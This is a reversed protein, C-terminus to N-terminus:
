RMWVETEEEPIALPSFTSKLSPLSIHKEEWFVVDEGVGCTVDVTKREDFHSFDRSLGDPPNQSGEVYYVDTRVGDEAMRDVCRFFANLFFGRGVGGFENLKRQAVVIAYHDTVVAVRAGRFFLHPWQRRAFELLLMAGAPEAHASKKQNFLTRPDSRARANPGITNLWRRQCAFVKGDAAIYGGFGDGSADTWLILNYDEEAHSPILRVEPVTTYERKACTQVIDNLQDRVPESVHELKADWGQAHAVACIARHAAFLTWFNSPAIAVTHMAYQALSVLSTFQRYTTAPRSAFERMGVLLKAVTKDTNRVGRIPGPGEHNPASYEEGCFTIPTVAEKLLVEDPMEIIDSTAPTSQLNVIQLRRAITKVVRTFLNAASKEAVILINDIITRIAVGCGPTLEELDVIVYTAAQGVAVSWRGGTPTRTWLYTKGSHRFAFCPWADEQLPISNYYADLDIQYAFWACSVLLRTARRTAYRLKPIDAEVANLHPEGIVRLRMKLETAAFVNIGFVHEPLPLAINAAEVIMGEELMAQMGDSRIRASKITRSTRANRWPASTLFVACRSWLELSAPHAVPLAELAAVVLKTTHKIHFPWEREPLIGELPPLGRLRQLEQLVDIPKIGMDRTSPPRYNVVESGAGMWRPM